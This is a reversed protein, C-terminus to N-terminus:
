EISYICMPPNVQKLRFIGHEPPPVGPWYIGVRWFAYMFAGLFLLSGTAAQLQQIKGAAHV